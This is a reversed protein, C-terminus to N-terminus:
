TAFLSRPCAEARGREATLWGELSSKQRATGSPTDLAKRLVLRCCFPQCTLVTALVEVTLAVKTDCPVRRPHFTKSLAPVITIGPGLLWSAPAPPSSRAAVLECSHNTPLGLRRVIRRYQKRFRRVAEIRGASMGNPPFFPAPM